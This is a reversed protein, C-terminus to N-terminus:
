TIEASFAILKKFTTIGPTSRMSLETKQFRLTGEFVLLLVDYPLTRNVHHEGNEFYRMSAHKFLISKNLNIGYMNMVMNM